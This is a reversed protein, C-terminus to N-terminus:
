RSSQRLTEEADDWLDRQGWFNAVACFVIWMSGESLKQSDGRSGFTTAPTETGTTGDAHERRASFLPSPATRRRVVSILSLCARALSRLCSMDDASCFLEIRTLLAFIWRMHVDTPVYAASTDDDNKTADSELSALYLNFWHTFYLVLHISFRHDLRSLQTPSLERPKQPADGDLPRISPPKQVAPPVDPRLRPGSFPAGELWRVDREKGHRIPRSHNWVSEPAGELFAWWADRNKKNPVREQFPGARQPRITPQSVNGRFNRFRREFQSRWEKSPLPSPGEVPRTPETSPRTVSQAPQPPRHAYPNNVRKIDPLRRADRRVTFLYQMGDSPEGDFGIPLNAVPLTQRLGYPADDDDDDVSDDGTYERKRKLPPGM